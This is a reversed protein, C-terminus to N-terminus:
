SPNAPADGALGLNAAQDQDLLIIDSAQLTDPGIVVV